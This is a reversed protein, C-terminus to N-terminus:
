TSSRSRSKPTRRTSATGSTKAARTRTPGEAAEVVDGGYVTGIIQVIMQISVAAPLRELDPQHVQFLELVGDVLQEILAAQDEDAEGDQTQGVKLLLLFLEAPCDRPLQYTDGGLKVRRPAGILQDLDTIETV